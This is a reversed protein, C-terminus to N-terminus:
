ADLYMINGIFEKGTLWAMRKPLSSAQDPNPTWFELASYQLNGPLELIESLLNRSLFRGSTLYSV